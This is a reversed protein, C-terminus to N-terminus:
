RALLDSKPRDRPLEQGTVEFYVVEAVNTAHDGIREVNKAVFLMHACPGILAPDDVMSALLEQSLANYLEDVEDDRRWVELARDAEQRSYADLVQHLNSLVARGMRDVSRMLALPEAENLALTRKAINKALDGVRELHVSIKMAALAHRLDRALPQRLALLRIVNRELERQLEDVEVDRAIVTEAMATDRRVVADLASAAMHEALGGMRAVDGSLQELEETFSRVTHQAM